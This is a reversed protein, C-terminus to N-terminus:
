FEKSRQILYKGYGSNGLPRALDLLQKKSIYGMQCAIVELCAVKLGQRAEVTKIYNSAEILSDYTGTDLWTFGRGM